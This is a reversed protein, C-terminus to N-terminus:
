EPCSFNDGATSNNKIHFPESEATFTREIRGSAYTFTTTVRYEYQGEELNEPLPFRTQVTTRGGQFYETREWIFVEDRTGDEDVQIIETHLKGNGPQTITRDYCVLHGDDGVTANQAEFQHVEVFYNAPAYAAWMAPALWGIAMFMVIFATIVLLRHESVDIDM